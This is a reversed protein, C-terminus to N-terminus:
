FIQFIFSDSFSFSLVILADNQILQTSRDPLHKPVHGMHIIPPIQLSSTQRHFEFPFASASYFSLLIQLVGFCLSNYFSEAVSALWYFKATIGDQYSLSTLM